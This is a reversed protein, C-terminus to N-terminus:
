LQGSFALNNLSNLLRDIEQMVADNQAVIRRKAALARVFKDQLLKPPALLKVARVNSTSITNLGSTTKGHGLFQRRGSPSNLFAAVFEPCLAGSAIRVRILHNQHLCNPVGGAWVACRGLEAPNGHGEVVLIDDKRLTVRAEEQPTVRITKLETLDMRDRFVNAVRLYPREIPNQSRAHTVQLGGSVETVDGLTVVPWGKPNRVPDGFLDIFLSRLFEDALKLAQERKRRIGDARDLIGSIRRQEDLPAIPIKIKAVESPRARMLSGGVGSLTKAIQAYFRDTLLFHRLYGPDVSSSRFVIWEGSGIQRSGDSSGVVWARRIHPVIRSFLVDGTKVLQKASGIESGALREPEGRDFAPISFLQFDEDPFRSPDVTGLRAAMIEGM